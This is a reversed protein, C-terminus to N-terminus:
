RLMQEVMGIERLIGLDLTNVDDTLFTNCRDLCIIVVAKSDEISTFRRLYLPDMRALLRIYALPFLKLFHEKYILTRLNKLGYATKGELIDNSLLVTRNPIKKMLRIMLQIPATTSGELLHRGEITSSLLNWFMCELIKELIADSLGLIAQLTEEWRKADKAFWKLYVSVSIVTSSLAVISASQFNSDELANTLNMLRQFCTLGKRIAVKLQNALASNQGHKVLSIVFIQCASLIYQMDDDKYHKESDKLIKFKGSRTLAALLRITLSRPLYLESNSFKITLKNILSVIDDISEHKEKEGESSGFLRESPLADLTSCVAHMQNAPNRSLYKMEDDMNSDLWNDIAIFLWSKNVSKGESESADDIYKDLSRLLCLLSNSFSNTADNDFYTEATSKSNIDNVDLSETGAASMLSKRGHNHGECVAPVHCRKMSERTLMCHVIATAIGSDSWDDNLRGKKRNLDIMGLYYDEKLYLPLFDENDDVELEFELWTRAGLEFTKIPISYTKLEKLTNAFELLEKVKNAIHTSIVEDNGEVITLTVSLKSFMIYWSELISLPIAITNYVINMERNVDDKVIIADAYMECCFLLLYSIFEFSKLIRNFSRRQRGMSCYVVERLLSQVKITGKIGELASAIGALAQLHYRELSHMELSLLALIRTKIEHVLQYQNHLSVIIPKILSKVTKSPSKEIESSVSYAHCLKDLFEDIIGKLLLQQDTKSENHQNNVDVFKTLHTMLSTIYLQLTLRQKKREEIKTVTEVVSPLENIKKIVMDFIERINSGARAFSLAIKEKEVAQMYSQYVRSPVKGAKRLHEIFSQRNADTKVAEPNLLVPLFSGIFYGKRFVSMELIAKPIVGTERFQSLGKEVDARAAIIVTNSSATSSIIDDQPLDRLMTRAVSIYKNVLHKMSSPVQPLISVQVSLFEKSELPVLDLLCKMYFTLADRSTAFINELDDLVGQLWAGYSAFGASLELSCHRALLLSLKLLSFNQIELSDILLQKIIGKVSAISDESSILWVSILAFLRQYNCSDRRMSSSLNSSLVSNELNVIFCQLADIANENLKSFTWNRHQCFAEEITQKPGNQHYANLLNVMIAQNTEHKWTKPDCIMPLLFQRKNLTYYFSFDNEEFAECIIKNVSELVKKSTHRPSSQLECLSFIIGKVVNRSTDDGIMTHLERRLFELANRGTKGGEEEFYDVWALVGANVLKLLVDLPIKVDSQVLNRSIDSQSFIGQRMFQRCINIVDDIARTTKAENLIMNRKISDLLSKALFEATVMSENIDLLLDNRCASVTDSLKEINVSIKGGNELDQIDDTRGKEETWESLM